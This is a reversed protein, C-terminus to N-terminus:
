STAPIAPMPDRGDGDNAFPANAIFDFGDLLKGGQSM